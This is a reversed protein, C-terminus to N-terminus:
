SVGGSRTERTWGRLQAETLPLELKACERRAALALLDMTVPQEREAALFAARLAINRIHGGPLHLRALREPDLDATPTAAPFTRRWIEARGAADPFPFEIVFRLRRLFAPDLASKLNSTLLALGRYAEMRQLLYSVEINAYRDHSDKVESRKGFLADAEDFLLVAGGAEAADFVRELNKETEGIYKSIVAALDIHYLDLGLDAALIEAALTKGTGSAGTFLATLGLGRASKGQWGWVDHVQHRCRAQTAVERLDALADEPLVLDQWSARPEIRRALGDLKPRAQRRCVDWLRQASVAPDDGTATSVEAATARVVSAGLRFQSALRLLDRDDLNTNGSDFSTRPSDVTGNTSLAGRWLDAQERTSLTPVDFVAVPRTGRHRDTGSLLLAGGLGAILRDVAAVRQADAQAGADELDLLVGRGAILAERQLRHLLDDLEVGPAPLLTASLRLLDIGLQQAASAAIEARSTADGGCLQLGRSVEESGADGAADGASDGISRGEARSLALAVEHVLKQWPEPLPPPQPLPELKSVLREDPVDLGVLFHLIREDLRLPAQTLVGDSAGLAVDLRLLRLRRLPAQPALASWHAEPLAALALGFTPEIAAFASDLEVGACLLIVAREFHSLGLSLCLQELAPPVGLADGDAAWSDAAWSDSGGELSEEGRGTEASLDLAQRVEALAALLYTRNFDLWADGWDAVADPITSQSPRPPVEDHVRRAREDTAPHDNM